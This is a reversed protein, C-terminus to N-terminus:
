KGPSCFDGNPSKLNLSSKQGRESDRISGLIQFFRTGGPHDVGRVHGTESWRQHLFVWYEQISPCM